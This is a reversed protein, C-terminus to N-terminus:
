GVLLPSECRVDALLLDSESIGVGFADLFRSGRADLQRMLLNLRPVLRDILLSTSVGIPLLGSRVTAVLDGPGFTVGLSPDAGPGEEVVGIQHDLISEASAASPNVTKNVQIEVQAVPLGLPGLVDLVVEPDPGGIDLVLPEPVVTSDTRSDGTARDCRIADLQSTAGAATIRVPMDITGTLLGAIDLDSGLTNALDLQATSLTDGPRGDYLWQAAQVVTTCVQATPNALEAVPDFLLGARPIGAYGDDYGPVTSCVELGAQGNIAELHSILLDAVNADAKAWGDDSGVEIGLIDRISRRRNPNPIATDRAIARDRIMLAISANGPEGRANFANASAEALEAASLEADLLEDPSAFGAGAAIDEFTVDSAALGQYGVATVGLDTGDLRNGFLFNLREAEGSELDALRSGLQLDAVGDLAAIGTRSTQGESAGIVPAFFYRTTGEAIVRVANPVQDDATEVFAGTQTDFTGYAATVDAPDIDNAASSRALTAAYDPDALIDAEIRGDALRVLDLAIADANAQQDRRDLSQRGLDVAFAVSLVLTALLLGVLAIVAGRDGRRADHVLRRRCTAAGTPSGSPSSTM